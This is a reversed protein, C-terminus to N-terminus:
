PSVSTALINIYLLSPFATLRESGAPQRAFDEYLWFVRSEDPKKLFTSIPASVPLYWYDHHDKHSHAHTSAAEAEWCAGYNPSAAVEPPKLEAGAGGWLREHSATGTYFSYKLQCRTAHTVRSSDAPWRRGRPILLLKTKRKQPVARGQLHEPSCSQLAWSGNLAEFYPMIHTSTPGLRQVPWSGSNHEMWFGDPSSTAQLSVLIQEETVCLKKNETSNPTSAKAKRNGDSHCNKNTRLSFFCCIRCGRQLVTKNINKSVHCTDHGDFQLSGM